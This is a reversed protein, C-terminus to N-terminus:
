LPMMSMSCINPKTELPCHLGGKLGAEIVQGGREEIDREAHEVQLGRTARGGVTLYGLDSGDLVPPSFQEARELSQDVGTLGDGRRDRNEGPDGVCHYEVCRPDFRRQRHKELEDAVGDDHPMVNSEVKRKEICRGDSKPIPVQLVFRHIGGREGPSQDSGLNAVKTKLGQSVVKPTRHSRNM